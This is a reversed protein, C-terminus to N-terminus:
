CDCHCAEPHRHMLCSVRLRPDERGSRVLQAWFRSVFGPNPRPPSGRRARPGRAHCVHAVCCSSDNRLDQQAVSHVLEGRITPAVFRRKQEESGHALLTPVLMDVGPGSVGAAVGARAFEEGVIITELIDPEGGYGGYERPITRAAYGQELLLQQWALMAQSARGGMVGQSGPARDRHREIFERLEVRFREPEEGYKLDM